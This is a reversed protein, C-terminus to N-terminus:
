HIFLFGYSATAIGALALIVGMAWYLKKRTLLTISCIVLAAELMVEGLDYRDARRSELKVEGEAKTAEAEIDKQQDRYKEAEKEYKDRVSAVQASNQVTTVVSLEDLFLEYAHRRIDKAQYFAWQDTAKTQHLLEETHARHGLLSVAAVLVALIAMTITVPAMGGKEAAEEAHEKLEEFEDPMNKGKIQNPNREPLSVLVGFSKM